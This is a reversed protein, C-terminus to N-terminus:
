WMPSVRKPDYAFDVLGDRYDIKVELIKLMEFGLTGSVETGTRHSIREMDLAVYGQKPAAFHGFRLKVDDISWVNKVYGNLGRVRIRDNIYPKGVQKAAALSLTNGFAGTDILFLMPKPRENAFTSILLMHGFHFIRSWSEMEPAVYRDKPLILKKVAAKSAAEGDTAEKAESQSEGGSNLSTEVQTEEPRKPLPSLKLKTGPIDIDILYSAFVNAGILGDRDILNRRDSVEVVCDQFELEGIKLHDVVAFYGGQPGKDGIGGYKSGSVRKLGAAEALGSGIIIGGAGTDLELKANRGNMNVTLGVASVRRPDSRLLELKTETRDVKSVLRCAHVPQDATAKLYDVSSQMWETEEADDPHPGALYAELAALREKRPLQGIWARRIEVDEPAIEHAANLLKYAKGYLSYARYLEALGLLAHAENHDAKYAAQFSQEAEPMEARRFHVEGMASLVAGSEPHAAVAKTGVEYAEDAKDLRVLARMLGAQAAADAPSAKLVERYAEAAESFKGSQFLKDGPTEACMAGAVVLLFCIARTVRLLTARGSCEGLCLSFLPSAIRRRGSRCEM